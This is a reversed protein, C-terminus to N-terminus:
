ILVCYRRSRWVSPHARDSFCLPLPRSFCLPPPGQSFVWDLRQKKEAIMLNVLSPAWKFPTLCYLSRLAIEPLFLTKPMFPYLGDSPSGMSLGFPAKLRKTELASKGYPLCTSDKRSSSLFSCTIKIQIFVDPWYRRKVRLAAHNCYETEDNRDGTRGRMGKQELPPANGETEREPHSRKTKAHAPSVKLGM